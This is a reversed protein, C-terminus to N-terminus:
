GTLFLDTRELVNSPTLVRTSPVEPVAVFERQNKREEDRIWPRFERQQGTRKERHNRKKREKHGPLLCRMGRKGGGFLLLCLHGM